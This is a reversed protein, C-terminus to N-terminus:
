IFACCDPGPLSDDERGLSVPISIGGASPQVPVLVFSRPSLVLNAHEDSTRREVRERRTGFGGERTAAFGTWAQIHQSSAVEGWRGGGGGNSKLATLLPNM